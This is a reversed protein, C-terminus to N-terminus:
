RWRLGGIRAGGEVVIRSGGVVVSGAAVRSWQGRQWRLGEVRLGGEVVRVVAM